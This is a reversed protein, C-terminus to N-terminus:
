IKRFGIAKGASTRYANKEKKVMIAVNGVM